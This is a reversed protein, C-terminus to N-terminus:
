RIMSSSFPINHAMNKFASFMGGGGGGDDHKKTLFYILIFLIVIAVVVGAIASYKATDPIGDTKSISTAESVQSAQLETTKDVISKVIQSVTQSIMLKIVSSQTINFNGNITGNNIVTITQTDNTNVKMNSTIINKITTDDVSALTNLTTSLSGSSNISAAGQGNHTDTLSNAAQKMVQKVSNAINEQVNSTINSIVTVDVVTSQLLNIDGNIVGTPGNEFKITKNVVTVISTDVAINNVHCNITTQLTQSIANTIAINGCGSSATGTLTNSIPPTGFLTGGINTNNTFTSGKCGAQASVLGKSQDSMMDTYDVPTLALPKNCDASM